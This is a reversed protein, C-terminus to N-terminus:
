LASIQGRIENPTRRQDPPAVITIAVLERVPRVVAWVIDSCRAVAQHIAIDFLRHLREADFVAEAHIRIKLKGASQQGALVRRWGVRCPFHSACSPRGVPSCYQGRRRKSFHLTTSRVASSIRCLHLGTPPEFGERRWYTESIVYSFNIPEITDNSGGTLAPPKRSKAV